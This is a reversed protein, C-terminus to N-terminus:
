DRPSPSTYLLCTNIIDILSALTTSKGSGTPGTVLVLGRKKKTLEVVSPPLGLSEASPIETSILRIVTGLAGKQKLVNVRFRGNGPIAHSFDAEGTEDLSARLREPVMPMILEATDAASLPERKIKRLEGHVRCKAEAGAAVHLDSAGIKRAQALLDNITFSLM